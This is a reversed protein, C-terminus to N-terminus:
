KLGGVGSTISIIGDAGITITYSINSEWNFNGIGFRANGGITFVSNGSQQNYNFQTQIPSLYNQNWAFLTIGTFSISPSGVVLGMKDSNYQLNLSSFLSSNSGFYGLGPMTPSFRVNHYGPKQIPDEEYIDFSKISNIAIFKSNVVIANKWFKGSYLFTYAERFQELTLTIPQTTDPFALDSNTSVFTSIQKNNSIKIVGNNGVIKRIENIANQEQQDKSLQASEKSCGFFIISILMLNKLFLVKKIM